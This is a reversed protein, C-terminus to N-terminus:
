PRCFVGNKSGPVRKLILKERKKLSGLTSYIISTPREWETDIRSSLARVLEYPSGEKYQDLWKFIAETPTMKDSGPLLRIVPAPNNAPDANPDDICELFQRACQEFLDPYEDAIEKIQKAAQARKEEETVVLRLAKQSKTEVIPM